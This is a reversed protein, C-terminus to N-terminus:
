GVFEEPARVVGDRVFLVDNYGRMPGVYELTEPRTFTVYLARRGADPASPPPAAHLVHGYHVTVDGPETDLAVVPMRDDDGPRLQHASGRWSGALMCLQGNAANAADLQIGVAVSPCLVPHGGLGCDRHWPLDSLGEVVRPNKIVVSQGDLRDIEPELHAGSLGALRRLRPDDGLSAVLESRLGMYILRCCVERGDRDTAWWSRGDNPRADARLRETEAVLASVEGPTFVGRLHLFGTCDLFSSLAADTSELTFSRHLDLGEVASPDFIPQGDFMARLAPEWRVLADFSGRPVRLLDAYLLGFSTRLEHVFDSWTPEDLEVVTGADADGAVVEITDASPVYTYARGDPLRFAIPAVTRVDPAALAGNGAALLAPLTETHYRDFDLPSFAIAM